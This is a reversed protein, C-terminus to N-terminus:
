KKLFNVIQTRMEFANELIIMHGCNKIVHTKSGPVLNSFEKGKELKIMKDLEGYIFLTPCNIKKVVNMGSEKLGAEIIESLKSWVVWEELWIDGQVLTGRTDM